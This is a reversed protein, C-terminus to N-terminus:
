ILDFCYLSLLPELNPTWRDVAIILHRIHWDQRRSKWPSPAKGVPNNKWEGTQVAKLHETSGSLTEM